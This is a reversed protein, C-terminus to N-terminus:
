EIASPQGGSHRDRTLYVIAVVLLAVCGPLNALFPWLTRWSPLTLILLGIQLVLLPVALGFSIPRTQKFFVLLLMLLAMLNFVAVTLYFLGLQQGMSLHLHKLVVFLLVITWLLLLTGTVFGFQWKSHRIM